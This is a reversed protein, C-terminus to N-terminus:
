DKYAANYSEYQLPLQDPKEAGVPKYTRQPSQRARRVLMAAIVILLVLAAAMLGIIIYSNRM